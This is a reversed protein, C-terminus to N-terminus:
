NGILNDNFDVNTVFKNISDITDRKRIYEEYTPNPDKGTFSNFSKFNLYLYQSCQYEPYLTYYKPILSYSM